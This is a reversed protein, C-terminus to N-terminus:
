AVQIESLFRQMTMHFRALPFGVVNYFCGEIRSVFVAGYDDQIGYAGAKDFPSGGAVYREIEEDSLSRFTVLTEEADTVQKNSPKDLLSFATIVRHTHGSLMTLMRVADEADQPKGLVQGDLVVVTDAGIIIGESIKAGVDRAKAQALLRANDEPTLSEVFREEVSSPIVEPNIGIQRLLRIRRPSTSALVLRKATVM